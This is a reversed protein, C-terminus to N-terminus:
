PASPYLRMAEKLVMTTYGLASVDQAILARDGAIADAEARVRRQVGPHRGLLHLTYTLATSTTEHGALLFVLVQDRVEGDSLSNGEDQADLLLGLLDEQRDGSARRHAVIQDCVSRLERQAHQLRQNVPTPWSRPMRGGALAHRRVADGLPGFTRRVVPLAQRLDEGFMIRCVTALTLRTMEKHLDITGPPQAQWRHVVQQVQETMVAAYGNGRRAVFLPQLYQKQRQWEADQTTLLGDGFASRIESYCGNEQRYNAPRGALVRHAADPHFLVHMELRAGPPGFRFRVVDGYRQFARECLGLMDRRLDLASGLLFSGPVLPAVGLTTGAPAATQLRMVNM